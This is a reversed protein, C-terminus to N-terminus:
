RPEDVAGVAQIGGHPRALNEESAGQFADTLFDKLFDDPFDRGLIEFPRLESRRARREGAYQNLGPERGRLTLRAPIHFASADVQVVIADCIGRAADGSLIQEKPLEKEQALSPARIGDHMHPCAALNSCSEQIKERAQQMRHLRLASHRTPWGMAFRLLS